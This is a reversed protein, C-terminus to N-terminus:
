RDSSRPRRRWPPAQIHGPQLGVHVIRADALYQLRGDGQGALGPHIARGGEDEVALGMGARHIIAGEGALHLTLTERRSFIRHPFRRCPRLLGRPPGGPLFTIAWVAPRSSAAASNATSSEQRQIARVAAEVNAASFVRAAAPMAHSPVSQTGGDPMYFAREGHTLDAHYREIGAATLAGVVEPFTIREEDSARSVTKIVDSVSRDM